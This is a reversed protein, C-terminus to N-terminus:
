LKGQAKLAPLGPCYKAGRIRMEDKLKCVREAQAPAAPRKQIM